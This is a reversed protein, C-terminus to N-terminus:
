LDGTAVATGRLFGYITEVLCQLGVPKTLYANVGADICRERDGPMALATLAIVPIREFGPMLRLYRTAELGDMEPMHIDMLILDPHMTTAVEIAERGNRALIMNFGREKLYGGLAEINADNDEALLITPKVSASDWVPIARHRAASSIRASDSQSDATKQEKEPETCIPLVLSFCSGRGPESEVM